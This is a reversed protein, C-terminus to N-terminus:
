ATAPSAQSPTSIPCARIGPASSRIATSNANSTSARGAAVVVRPRSLRSAIRSPPGCSASSIITISTSTSDTNRTAMSWAAQFAAATNTSGQPDLVPLQMMELQDITKIGGLLDVVSNNYGLMAVAYRPRVDDGRRSRAIMKRRTRELASAVVDIRRRGGCDQAMSASLDILYVIFAPQDSTAPITYPM